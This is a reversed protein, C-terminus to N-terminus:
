GEVRTAICFRRLGPSLKPPFLRRHRKQLVAHLLRYLNKPNLIHIKTLPTLEQLLSTSLIPYFSLTTLTDSGITHADSLLQASSLGPLPTILLGV